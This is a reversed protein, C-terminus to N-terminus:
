TRVEDFEDDSETREIYEVNERENYGGGAGTRAEVKGFKPENCINCENRRAWNINGCRCLFFYVYQLLMSTISSVYVCAFFCPVFISHILVPKSPASGTTLM